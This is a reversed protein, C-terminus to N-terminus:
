SRGRALRIIGGFEMASPCRQSSIDESPRANAGEAEGGRESPVGLAERQEGDIPARADECVEAVVADEVEVDHDDGGCGSSSRHERLCHLGEAEINSADPLCPDATAVDGVVEVGELGRCRGSCRGLGRGELGEHSM